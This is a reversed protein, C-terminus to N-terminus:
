NHYKKEKKKKIEEEPAMKHFWGISNARHIVWFAGNETVWKAGRPVEYTLRSKFIFWLHQKVPCGVLIRTTNWLIFRNCLLSGQLIRLAFYNVGILM